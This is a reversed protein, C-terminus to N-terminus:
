VLVFRLPNGVSNSGGFRKDPLTIKDQHKAVVQDHLRETRHQILQQQGLSTDQEHFHIIRLLIPNGLYIFAPYNSQLLLWLM